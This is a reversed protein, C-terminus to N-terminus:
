AMCSPQDRKKNAYNLSMINRHNWSQSRSYRKQLFRVSWKVESRKVFLCKYTIISMVIVEHWLRGGNGYIYIYLIYIYTIFSFHRNMSVQLIYIRLLLGFFVFFFNTEITILHLKYPQVWPTNFVLRCCIVSTRLEIWM